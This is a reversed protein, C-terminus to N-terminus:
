NQIINEDYYKTNENLWSENTLWDRKGPEFRPAAELKDETLPVFFTLEEDDDVGAAVKMRDYPVAAHEEGIGLFGGFEVVIHTPKGENSLIVDRIEGIIKGDAGRLDAELMRQVTLRGKVENVPTAREFAIKAKAKDPDAAAQSATKSPESQIEKIAAVIAECAAEKGYTKLKVAARRFEQLDNRVTKTYSTEDDRKVAVASLDCEALAPGIGCATTIIIALGINKQKM